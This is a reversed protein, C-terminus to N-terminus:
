NIANEIPVAIEEQYHEHRHNGLKRGAVVHFLSSGADNRAFFDIGAEKFYQLHHIDDLDKVESKNVYEYPGGARLEGHTIYEFIPSNGTKNRAKIDVGFGQFKEIRSIFRHPMQVFFHFATNGDSDPQLPDAGYKLLLDTDRRRGSESKKTVTITM